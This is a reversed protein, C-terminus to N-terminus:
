VWVLCGTPVLGLSPRLAEAAENTTSITTKGHAHLTAATTLIIFYMILNSFLIGTAVDNRSKRIEHETARVWLV